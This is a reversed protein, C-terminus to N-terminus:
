VEPTNWFPHLAQVRFYNEPIPQEAREGYRSVNYDNIGYSNTTYIADYRANFLVDTGKTFLGHTVFLELRLPHHRLLQEALAVFTFGGDCIDDVVLLNYNSIDSLPRTEGGVLLRTVETRDIKGTSTNRVKDAYVVGAFGLKRAIEDTKKIAGADPSVLLYQAARLGQKDILYSAVLQSQTIVRVNDFLATTVDSHPDTITVTTLRLRNIFDAFVKIGLAEGVNAVRDQRAYPVYGLILNIKPNPYRKSRRLADVVLAISLVDDSSQTDALINYEPAEIQVLELQPHLEGGPLKKVEVMTASASSSYMSAIYLM